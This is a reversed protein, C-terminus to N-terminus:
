TLAQAESCSRSAAASPLAVQAALLTPLFQALAIQLAGEAPEAGALGAGEGFMLLGPFLQKELQAAITQAPVRSSWSVGAHM